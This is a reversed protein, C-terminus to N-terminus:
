KKDKACRFGLLQNTYKSSLGSRFAHRMFSAYNTADKSKLSGGGCFLGELKDGPANRSDQTILVSNYDDVWEWIHGHMGRLGYKGQALGDVAALEDGAISGYWHLITKVNLPNDADSAYEWEDIRALRGGVSQCYAKAAFWSVNVVPSKGLRQEEEESLLDGKWHILYNEDVFLSLARSKRWRDHVSLFDNFEKNTVPTEQLKFSRVRVPRIEGSGDSLFPTHEGDPILLFSAAQTDKGWALILITFLFCLEKM